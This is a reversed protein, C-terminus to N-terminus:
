YPSTSRIKEVIPEISAHEKMLKKWINQDSIIEPDSIKRSLDEYKEEIFELKEIMRDSEM